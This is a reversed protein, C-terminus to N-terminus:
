GLLKILVSYKDNLYDMCKKCDEKNIFCYYELKCRLLEESSTLEAGFSTLINIYEQHSIGIIPHISKPFFYENHNHYLLICYDITHKGYNTHIEFM